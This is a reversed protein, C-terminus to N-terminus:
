PLPPPTITLTAPLNLMQFAFEAPKDACGFRRALAQVDLSEPLHGPWPSVAKGPADRLFKGYVDVQEKSASGDLNRVSKTGHASDLGFEMVHGPERLVIAQPRRDFLLLATDHGILTRAILRAGNIRFFGPDTTTAPMAGADPGGPEHLAPWSRIIESRIVLGCEPARDPDRPKFVVDALLPELLRDVATHSGVALMGDGFASLWREDVSFFRASDTPLVADSFPMLYWTPLVMLLDVADWLWTEQAGEADGAGGPDASATARPRPLHRRRLADKLRRAVGPHSVLAAAHEAPPRDDRSFPVYAGPAAGGSEAEAQPVQLAMPAESAHGLAATIDTGLPTTSKDRHGTMMDEFRRRLPRPDLAAAVVTEAIGPSGAASPGAAGARVLSMMRKQADHKLTLLRGFLDRRALILQYGINWAAALSIDFACEATSYILAEDACSFPQHAPVSAIQPPPWPGFPGRYWSATQEGTVLGHNMPVYGAGLRERVAAPASPTPTYRLRDGQRADKHNELMRRFADAYTEPDVAPTLFSWSWLSVLRLKKQPDLGQDTLHEEHGTLCVLHATYPCPTDKSRTDPTTPDPMARPFRSAIVTGHASLPTGTAGSTGAAAQDQRIERRVHTLLPLTKVPDPLLRGRLDAVLVDIVTCPTDPPPVSIAPLLAGGPDKTLLDAAQGTATTLHAAEDGSLVLVAMTPAEGWVAPAPEAREWPLYPDRLSVYPLLHGAPAASGPAPFTALVDAPTLSFRRAGVTFEQAGPAFTWDFPNKGTGQVTQKVDLTYTGLPIGPIWAGHLELGAESAPNPM